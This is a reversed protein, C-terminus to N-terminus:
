PALVNLMVGHLRVVNLRVVSLVFPKYTVDLM